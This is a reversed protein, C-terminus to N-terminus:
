RMRGKRRLKETEAKMKESEKREQEDDYAIEALLGMITTMPLKRFEELPIWGYVCMMKHHSRRLWNKVREPDEERRQFNRVVEGFNVM